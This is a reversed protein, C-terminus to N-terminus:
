LQEVQLHDELSLPKWDFGKKVLDNYENKMWETPSSM